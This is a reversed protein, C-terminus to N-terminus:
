QHGQYHGMKCRQAVAFPLSKDVFDVAAGHYLLKIVTALGGGRGGLRHVATRPQKVLHRAALTTRIAAHVFKQLVNTKKQKM